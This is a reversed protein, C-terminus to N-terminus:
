ELDEWPNLERLAGLIADGLESEPDHSRNHLAVLGALVIAARSFTSFLEIDIKLTPTTKKGNPKNGPLQAFARALLVRLLYIESIVDNEPVAKLMESEKDTFYQQYIHHKPTRQSPPIWELTDDMFPRSGPPLGASGIAPSCDSDTKM